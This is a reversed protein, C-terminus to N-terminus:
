TVMIAGLDEEQKVIRSVEEVAGAVADKNAARLRACRLQDGAFIYRPLYCYSDYYGHFFREQQHGYVPIDTADLDLVFAPKRPWSMRPPFSFSSTFRNRCLGISQL